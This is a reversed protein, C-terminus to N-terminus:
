SALYFCTVTVGVVLGALLGQVFGHVRAGRVVSAFMPSHM